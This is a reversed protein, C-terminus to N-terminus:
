KNATEKEKPAAKTATVKPRWFEPDENETEKAVYSMEPSVAFLLSEMSQFVDGAGKMLNQFNSEGMAQVMAKERAPQEDLAKLSKMPIIFMYTGVPTGAIGEYCFVTEDIKAKKYADLIMKSGAMFGDDKGLRVRYTAIMVYRTKGLSPPNPSIYSLDPRFVATMTRSSVRLDGDRSEVAELEQKLPAKGSLKDGEEIAAFSPYSNVFWAENPGSSTTLGIYHTPYNNKRFVNAYAQEARIHAAGKGEKVVERVITIVPPPGQPAQALLVGSVLVGALLTSRM